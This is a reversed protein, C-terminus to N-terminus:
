ASFKSPFVHSCVFIATIPAIGLVLANVATRLGPLHALIAIPIGWLAAFVFTIGIFFAMGTPRNWPKLNFSPQDAVQGPPLRRLEFWFLVVFSLIGLPFSAAIQNWPPSDSEAFGAFLYGWGACFFFWFIYFKRM